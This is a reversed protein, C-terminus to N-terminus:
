QSKTVLGQMNDTKICSNSCHEKILKRSITNRSRSAVDCAQNPKIGLLYRSQEKDSFVPKNEAVNNRM